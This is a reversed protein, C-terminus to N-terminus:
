IIARVELMRLGTHCLLGNAVLNINIEDSDQVGHEDLASNGYRNQVQAYV